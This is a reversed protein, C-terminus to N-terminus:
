FSTGSARIVSWFNTVQQIIWSLQNKLKNMALILFISHLIPLFNLIVYIFSSSYYAPNVNIFIHIACSFFSITTFWIAKYYSDLHTVKAERKMRRAHFSLYAILPVAALLYILFPMTNWLFFMQVKPRTFDLTFDFTYNNSFEFHTIWVNLSAQSASILVSGVILHIVRTSIITRLCQFFVNHFNSIKLCFVVSLLALFWVCSHNSTIRVFHFLITIVVAKKLLLKSAGDFMCTLLFIVRSIELSTIIQDTSALPRGKMWAVINGVIVFVHVIIGVVFVVTVSVIFTMAQAANDEMSSAM